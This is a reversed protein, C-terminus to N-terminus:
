KVSGLLVLKKDPFASLSRAEFYLTKADGAAEFAGYFTKPLGSPLADLGMSEAGKPIYFSQMDIMKFERGLDDKIKPTDLIREEKKTLNRVKFQVIFYIGGDSVADKRFRNNSKLRRGKNTAALVIWESDDFKVTDGIKQIEPLPEAAKPSEPQASPAEPQASASAQPAQPVSTAPDPASATPKNSKTLSGIVIMFLVFGGFGILLKKGLGMKLRAGCQPCTKADKAV